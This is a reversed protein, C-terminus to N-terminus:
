HGSEAIVIDIRSQSKMQYAQSKRCLVDTAVQNMKM